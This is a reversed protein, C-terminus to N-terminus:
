HTLCFAGVQQISHLSAQLVVVTSHGRQLVGKRAWICPSKHILGYLSYRNTHISLDSINKLRKVDERAASLASSLVALIRGLKNLM